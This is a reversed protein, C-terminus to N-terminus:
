GGPVYCGVSALPRIVQGVSIGDQTRTWAKPKQWAAFQRVKAAARRLASRFESSAQRWASSIEARDVHVAQNTALGDWRQAYQCLVRDGDRRVNGVIRRVKKSVKDLDEARVALASVCSRAAAGELTRM